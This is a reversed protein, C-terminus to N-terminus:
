AATRLRTELRRILESHWDVGDYEAAVRLEPWAFDLRWAWGQLDV